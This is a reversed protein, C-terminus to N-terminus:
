RVLTMFGKLSKSQSEAGCDIKYQLTYYYTGDDETPKWTCTPSTSEFIQVGWRNYIYVQLSSFQYKAFDIVDNIGDNNPTVINPMSFNLISLLPNIILTDYALCGNRNVTVWYTGPETVQISSSTQGTNWSYTCSINTADLIKDSKCFGTDNGLDVVPYSYLYLNFSDRSVCTTNLTYDVWYTGPAILSHLSGVFGDNWNYLVTNSYTANVFVPSFSNGCEVSDRLVNIKPPTNLTVKITDSNKCGNSDTVHVWYTGSNAITIQETSAGTSWVYSSEGANAMLTYSPKCLMTDKGLNVTPLSNVSIFTTTDNTCGNMDTAHVAYSSLVAPNANVSSGITNLLSTSSNWTYTLAGSAMLIATDGICITPSNVTITPLPNVTLLATITYYMGNSKTGTITYTISNPANSIVTNGVTTNLYTAPSWSYTVAGSATLTATSGSCISVPKVSVTQGVNTIKRIRNNYSDCFYLNGLSDFALSRPQYIEANIALGGDGSYGIMGTGAITSIIGSPTVKRIRNNYIDGIFLNGAADTIVDTPENLEAETAQGGDGTYGENANTGAGTTVGAITTIIGISNVKRILDNGTDAIYINGEADVSMGDPWFVCAATAQGGDGSYRSYINGAVTSIINTGASIKRIRSNTLDAFYINGSLDLRVKSPYALEAATAPGGDGNFGAAGNGAITNIIGTSSNVKRIRANDADAIYLNGFADTNIGMPANLEAATAQGGDGSFGGTGLGAGYGNGAVTTIIGNADVKRIVNNGWDSFYLNGANDFGLAMPRYLEAATAQGGDGTYGGFGIMYGNGAVTTIIQAELIKFSFLFTILRLIQKM